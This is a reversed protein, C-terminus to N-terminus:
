FTQGLTIFFQFHSIGTLVRPATNELLQQPTGKLGFFQPPNISYAFDARVPGVPTAYRLGFGVAHVMYDLNVLSPQHVRFSINSVTSYMNGMDHFLVGGINGYIPFRFELNHFLLANGGLPYGTLPDRPGAQNEPFGRNTMLGGGFFREPLPISQAAPVGSPVAFPAIWGFQLRRALVYKRRITYYTANSGLLRTFSSQSGFISSSVGLNLSNYIGHHPALPNDRRDQIYNGSLLGIRAPQSLLPVLLPNIKLDSIGTRSYSFSWLVTSARSLKQSLLLQGQLRQSNFTNVNFSRDYLATLTVDRGAVGRYRPILYNVEGLQELTSLRGNFRLTQGLGWTNLRSINVNVRPSFGTQGAPQTFDTTNGGGIRAIEAGVGGAIQWRAGERMQFLVYKEATNGDPNQVATNVMDFIGLNYLNEQTQTMSEPSLPEGRRITFASELLRPATHQIGGVVVDRVWRRQGETIRYALRVDHPGSGPQMSWSFSADPYGSENYMRIIYNRDLAVNLESFPQGEASSLGAAIRAPNLQRIGDITLKSVLYQPGEVIRVLAAVDNPKGAYNKVTLIRVQVDRFGNAHYLGEVAAVDNRVFAENYKGHEFWLWGAPQILMRERISEASFYRNGEVGVHVLKQRVGPDITYVIDEHGAAIRDIRYNVQADFYGQLQFYDRLNRAGEVLLDRYVAREDYIPVYRQLQKNSVKAGETRVHVKPGANVRIVPMVTSEGADYQMKEISISAMLRSADIYKKRLQQLGKQTNGATVPKWGFLFRHFHAAEAVEDAKMEPQGTIIPKRYRARKGADVVVTINVQQHVPDRTVQSSVKAEYFGNEELVPRVRDVAAALAEASFPRGLEIGAAGAIEGRTPSRKIDSAIHVWGNFWQYRTHIVIAVGGNLPRGEVEIYKYRGTDYLRKITARLDAAHYPLDPKLLVVSSLEGSTLPQDAPELRVSVIRQGEFAAPEPIQACACVAGVLAFLIGPGSRGRM